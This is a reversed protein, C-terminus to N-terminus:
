WRCTKQKLDYVPVTETGGERTKENEYWEKREFRYVDQQKMYFYPHRIKGEFKGGWHRALKQSAVNEELPDIVVLSLRLVDFAYRLIVGLAETM